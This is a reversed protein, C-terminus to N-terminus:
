TGTREKRFQEAYKKFLAEPDDPMLKKGAANPSRVDAANNKKRQREEEIKKAKAAADENPQTDAKPALDPHQRLMDDKYKKFAFMVDEATNSDALAQIASSQSEKWKNWHPSRFVEPANPHNELLIELQEQQYAKAEQERLFRLTEIEKTSSEDAVGQTAEIIAKTIADALEADDKKVDKLAADIKAQLKTAVQSSPSTQNKTLEELKKDLERLRKQVHPVRGAQSKLAHNEKNLKELQERLKTLEDSEQPKNKDKEGTKDATPDDKGEQPGKEDGDDADPKGDDADDAEDDDARDDPQLQEEDKDQDDDPNPAQEATLDSLKNSDGDRMAQSIENFLKDTDLETNDTM